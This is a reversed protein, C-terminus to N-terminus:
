DEAILGAERLKAITERVNVALEERSNEYKATLYDLIKEETTEDQLLEMIERGSENMKLVGHVESAGDGVPVSIIEDGMNVNEFTYKLKM